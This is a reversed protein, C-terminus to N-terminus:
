VWKKRLPERLNQAKKYGNYHALNARRIGLRSLDSASQFFTTVAPLLVFFTSNKQYEDWVMCAIKRGPKPARRAELDAKIKNEPFMIGFTISALGLAHNLFLLKKMEATCHRTNNINLKEAGDRANKLM